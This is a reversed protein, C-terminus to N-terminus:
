ESLYEGLGDFVKGGELVPVLSINLSVSSKLEHALEDSISDIKVQTINQKSRITTRIYYIDELKNVKTQVIESSPLNMKIIEDISQYRYYDKVSNSTIIVLPICIIILFIASWIMNSKKREKSTSYNLTKFKALLLFLSAAVTVAILNSVFLLLSGGFDTINKDALSLGMVAIPPVLAAAIVVGAIAETLKPYAVVFAGIFGATLAILLEFITPQTRSLVEIGFETIPAIVGIVYAVILIIVLTKVITVLSSELLRVSGKVIGLAMALIPWFLPALLMGGIIVAGSNIILGLTIIVGSLISRVYFDMDGKAEERIQKEVVEQRDSPIRFINLKKKISNVVENEM